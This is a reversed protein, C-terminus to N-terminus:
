RQRERQRQNSEERRAFYSATVKSRRLTHGTVLHAHEAHVAKAEVLLRRLGAVFTDRFGNLSTGRDFIPNRGRDGVAVLWTNHAGVPCWEVCQKACDLDHAVVVTRTQGKGHVNLQIGGPGTRSLVATALDSVRLAGAFTMLIQARLGLARVLARASGPADVAARRTTFGGQGCFIEAAVVPCEVPNAARALSVEFGATSHVGDACVVVENKDASVAFTARALSVRRREDGLEARRRDISQELLAQAYSRGGEVVRSLPLMSLQRIASPPLVFRHDPPVAVPTGIGPIVGARDADNRFARAEEFRCDYNHELARIENRLTSPAVGAELRWMVYATVASGRDLEVRREFEDFRAVADRPLHESTM